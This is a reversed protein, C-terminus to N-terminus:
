ENGKHTETQQGHLHAPQVQMYIYIALAACRVPRVEMVSTNVPMTVTM